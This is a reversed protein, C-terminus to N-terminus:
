KLVENIKDEIKSYEYTFDDEDNIKLKVLNERIEELASRYTNKEEYLEAGEPTLFGEGCLYCKTSSLQKKLEKNEERFRKNEARGDDIIAQLRNNNDKLARNEQELNNKRTIIQALTRCEVENQTYDTRGSINPYITVEDKCVSCVEAYDKTGRILKSLEENEQELRKNELSLRTINEVNRDQKIQQIEELLNNIQIEDDLTQQYYKNKEQELRLYKRYYCGRYNDCHDDYFDCWFLVNGSEGKRCCFHLCDIENNRHKKEKDEKDIIIEEKM